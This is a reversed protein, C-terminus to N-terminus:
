IQEMRWESEIHVVGRPIIDGEITFPNLDDVIEFGELTKANRVQFRPTYVGPTLNPNKYRVILRYKGKSVNYFRTKHNDTNLRGVCCIGKEDYIAVSLFLEEMDKELEFDFFFTIDERFSIKDTKNGRKNLLGYETLVAEGSSLRGFSEFREGKKLAILRKERMRGLYEAVAKDADGFFIPVGKDIVLVKDCITRVHEMNHSVFVVANASERIEGLRRLSKNQFSFDGVSLVEDILLIEPEMHAAISFGLRVYMGSSYYKVPSDIFEGIDAFGVIEDYKEDIEKKRMGLIAGNVYINDRGTLMPHFGAGIEILAGVRGKINIEGKDPMFIGNLMKLITSKGSGNPGIIGLTEGEHVKFSVNDVAWFEGERLRWSNSSLGFINLAIDQIGYKISSMLNLSFKKSIGDAKVPVEDVTM